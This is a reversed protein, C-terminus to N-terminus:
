YKLWRPHMLLDYDLMMGFPNIRSRFAKGVQEYCNQRGSNQTSRLPFPSCLASHITNLCCSPLHTPFVCRDSLCEFAPVHSLFPFKELRIWFFPRSSNFIRKFATATAMKFTKRNTCVIMWDLVGIHRMLFLSLRYSAPLMRIAKHHSSAMSFM